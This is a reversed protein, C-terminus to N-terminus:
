DNRAALAAHARRYPALWRRALKQTFVPDLEAAVREAAPAAVTGTIDDREVGARVCEAWVLVTVLALAALVLWATTTMGSKTIARTMASTM